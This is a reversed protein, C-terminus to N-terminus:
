WWISIQQLKQNNFIASTLDAIYLCQPIEDWLTPKWVMNINQVCHAGIVVHQFLVKQRGVDV